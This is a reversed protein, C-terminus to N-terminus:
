EEDWPSCVHVRLVSGRRLLSSLLQMGNLLMCPRRKMDTKAQCLDPQM